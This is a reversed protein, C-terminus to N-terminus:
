DLSEPWLLPSRQHRLDLEDLAIPELRSDTPTPQESSALYASETEISQIPRDNAIVPKLSMPRANSTQRSVLRSTSRTLRRPPRLRQGIMLSGLSCAAVISVLSVVSLFQARQPSYTGTPVSATSPRISPETREAFQPSMILLSSLVGIGFLTLWIGSLVLIPRHQLPRMVWNLNLRRSSLDYASKDTEFGSAPASLPQM